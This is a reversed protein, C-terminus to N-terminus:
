KTESYIDGHLYLLATQYAVSLLYVFTVAITSFVLMYVYGSTPILVTDGFNVKAEISSLYADTAILTPLLLVLSAVFMIFSGLLTVGIIKGKHQFAQKYAVKFDFAASQKKGEETTTDIYLPKMMRCYYTYIFPAAIVMLVIVAILLGCLALVKFGDEMGGIWGTLTETLSFLPSGLLCLVGLYPLSRVALQMTRQMTKKWAKVDKEQAADPAAIEAGHIRRYFLFLRASAIIIAVCFLVYFLVAVMVESMEVQGGALMTVNLKTNIASSLVQFLAAITYYPLMVKSILLLQKALFWFGEGICKAYSHHEYLSM